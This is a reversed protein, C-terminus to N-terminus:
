GIPRRHLNRLIALDGWAAVPPLPRAKTRERKGTRRRYEELQDAVFAQSGLVAGDTFIRLRCRLVTTLPLQGGAQVVAAFAEPSIGGGFKRPSAGTGFLLLRYAAQIERWDKGPSAIGLGTRALACGGVAEAYGCFRYDKPDTALGARVANLDIYAAVTRLSHPKTEVLVSKFREAWLTGIRRHSKNFWISFRQKVMKMYASIDGMLALQRLRWAVGEPGNSALQQRVVELREAQYKTPRPYLAQHRRLLETDDVPARQPVRVLVHFHNSLVAYTVVEVGCYDALLWIQRRLIERARADFLRERNVTRSICHYAAVSETADIKIRRQRM